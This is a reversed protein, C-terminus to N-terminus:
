RKIKATKGNIWFFFFFRHNWHSDQSNSSLVYYERKNGKDERHIWHGSVAIIYEQCNIMDFVTRAYYIHMHFDSSGIEPTYQEISWARDQGKPFKSRSTPHQTRTHLCLIHTVTITVWTYSLHSIKKPEYSCLSVETRHGINRGLVGFRCAASLYKM